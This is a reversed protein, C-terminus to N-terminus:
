SKSIGLVVFNENQINFPQDPRSSAICICEGNTM